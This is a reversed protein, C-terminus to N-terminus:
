EDKIRIVFKQNMIFSEVRDLIDSEDSFNIDCYTKCLEVIEEALLPAPITDEELGTGTLMGQFTLLINYKECTIILYGHKRRVTILRSVHIINNQYAVYQVIQDIGNHYDYVNWKFRKALEKSVTIEAM